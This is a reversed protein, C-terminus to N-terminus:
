EQAFTKLNGAKDVARVKLVIKEAYVSKTTTSGDEHEDEAQEKLYQKKTATGRVVHPEEGDPRVIGDLHGSALLMAIHGKALPLPPRPLPMEKPPELLRQLKSAALARGVEEETLEHKEFTRPGPGSPVIYARDHPTSKLEDYRADWDAEASKARRYGFVVVERFRRVDAPFPMVTVDEYRELLCDKTPGYRGVVHDPVVFCLVGGPRLWATWHDLWTREVRGGGGGIEDDYPPNLWLLDFSGVVKCGFASAPALANDFRKKLEAGRGSDLEIGHPVGGTMNAIQELALGEGACPDLISFPKRATDLHMLAAAVARPPAPYYGCRQAGALRM